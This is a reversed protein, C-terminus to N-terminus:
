REVRIISGRLTAIAERLAEIERQQALTYLTLEEVKELLTMQFESLNLGDTRIDQLSPM